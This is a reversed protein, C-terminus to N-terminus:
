IDSFAKKARKIPGGRFGQMVPQHQEWCHLPRGGDVWGGRGAPRPGVTGCNKIMLVATSNENESDSSRTHISNFMVLIITFGKNEWTRSWLGHHSLLRFYGINAEQLQWDNLKCKGLCSNNQRLWSYQLKDRHKCSTLVSLGSRIGEFQTYAMRRAVGGHLELDPSSKAKSIPLTPSSFWRDVCGEANQTAKMM